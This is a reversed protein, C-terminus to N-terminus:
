HKSATPQTVPLAASRYFSNAEFVRTGLRFGALATIVIAIRSRYSQSEVVIRSRRIARARKWNSALLFHVDIKRRLRITTTHCDFRVCITIEIVKTTTSHTTTDDYRLRIAITIVASAVCSVDNDTLALTCFQQRQRTAIDVCGKEPM